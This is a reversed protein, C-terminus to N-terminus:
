AYAGSQMKALLDSVLEMGENGRNMFEAPRVGGLAPNPSDVWRSLWAGPDFGEPNGSEQVILVVQGILRSFGLLREASQPDLLEDNKIRRLITARPFEALEILRERPLDMVGAVDDVVSGKIGLQLISLRYPRGEAHVKIFNLAPQSKLKAKTFVNVKRETSVAKKGYKELTGVTVSPGAGAARKAPARTAPKKNGSGATTRVTAM